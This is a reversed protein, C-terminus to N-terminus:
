RSLSFFFAQTLNSIDASAQALSTVAAKAVEYYV